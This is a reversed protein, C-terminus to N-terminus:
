LSINKILDLAEEKVEKYRPVRNIDLTIEDSLPWANARSYVKEMNIKRSRDGVCLTLYAQEFDVSLYQKPSGKEYIKRMDTVISYSLHKAEPDASYVYSIFPNGFRNKDPNTKDIEDPESLRKKLELSILHGDQLFQDIIQEFVIASIDMTYKSFQKSFKMRFYSRLCQFPNLGDHDQCIILGDKGTQPIKILFFLGITDLDDPSKSAKLIREPSIIRSGSGTRGTTIQGLLIRDDKEYADTSEKLIARSGAPDKYCVDGLEQIWGDMLLLLDNKDDFSFLDKNALERKSRVQLRYCLLKDAM